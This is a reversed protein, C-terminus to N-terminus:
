CGHFLPLGLFPEELFIMKERSCRPDWCVEVHHSSERGIEGENQVRKKDRGGWKVRPIRQELKACLSLTWPSSACIRRKCVDDCRPVANTIHSSNWCRTRENHKGDKSSDAVSDDCDQIQGIM